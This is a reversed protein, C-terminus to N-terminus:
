HNNYFYMLAKKIRTYLVCWAQNFLKESGLFHMSYVALYPIKFYYDYITWSVLHLCSCISVTNLILCINDLYNIQLSYVVVSLVLLYIRYWVHKCLRCWFGSASLGLRTLIPTPKYSSAGMLRYDSVQNEIQCRFNFYFIPTNCMIKFTPWEFIM